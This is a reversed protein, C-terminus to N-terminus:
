KKRYKELIKFLTNPYSEPNNGLFDFHKLKLGGLCQELLVLVEFRSAIRRGLSERSKQFISQIFDELVFPELIDKGAYNRMFERARQVTSSIYISKKIM